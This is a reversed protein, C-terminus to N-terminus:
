WPLQRTADIALVALYHASSPGVTPMPILTKPRDAIASRLSSVTRHAVSPRSCGYTKAKDSIETKIPERTSKPQRVTGEEFSRITCALESKMKRWGSTRCAALRLRKRRAYLCHQGM